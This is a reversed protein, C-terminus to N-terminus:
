GHIGMELGLERHQKEWRKLSKQLEKAHASLHKGDPVAEALDRDMAEFRASVESQTKDVKRLRDELAAQQDANLTGVFAQHHSQMAQHLVKTWRQHAQVWEAESLHEPKKLDAALRRLRESVGVCTRLQDRQDDTAQLKMREQPDPVPRGLVGGHHAGRQALALPSIGALSVLALLFKAIRM